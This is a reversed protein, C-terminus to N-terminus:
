PELFEKLDRCFVAIAAKTLEVNGAAYAAKVQRWSQRLEGATLSIVIHPRPTEWAKVPVLPRAARREAFERLIRDAEADLPDQAADPELSNHARPTQM